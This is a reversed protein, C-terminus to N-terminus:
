VRTRKAGGQIHIHKHNMYIHLQEGTDASENDETETIQLKGHASSFRFILSIFPEYTEFCTGLLLLGYCASIWCGLQV